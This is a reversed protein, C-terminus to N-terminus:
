WQFLVKNLQFAGFMDTKLLLKFALVHAFARSVRGQSRWCRANAARGAKRPKPPVATHAPHGSPGPASWVTQLVPWM